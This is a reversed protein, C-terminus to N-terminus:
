GKPNNTQGKQKKNQSKKKRTPSKESRHKRLKMTKSSPKRLKGRIQVKEQRKFCKSKLKGANEQHTTTKENLFFFLEIQMNRERERERLTYM